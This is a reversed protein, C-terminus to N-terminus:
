RDQLTGPMFSLVALWTPLPPACLLHLRVWLTPSFRLYLRLQLLIAVYSASPCTCFDAAGSPRYYNGLCAVGPISAGSCPPAVLSSCLPNYSGAAGSMRHCTGLNAAITIGACSHPLAELPARLCNYPNAACPVRRHGGPNIADPTYSSRGPPPSTLRLPYYGKSGPPLRCLLRWM